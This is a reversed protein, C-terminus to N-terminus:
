PHHDAILLLSGGATVWDRVAAIEEASFANTGDQEGNANSIVLVRASRLAEATFEGPSPWAEKVFEM